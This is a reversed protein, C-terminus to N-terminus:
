VEDPSQNCNPEERLTRSDEVEKKTRDRKGLSKKNGKAGKKKNQCTKQRGLPIDENKSIPSWRTYVSKLRIKLKCLLM